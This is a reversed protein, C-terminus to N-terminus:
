AAHTPHPRRLRGALGIEPRARSWYSAVRHGALAAPRPRIEPFRWARGQRYRYPDRFRYRRESRRKRAPPSPSNMGIFRGHSDLLPGGSNGPNIAADTQIVSIAIPPGDTTATSAPIIGTTMTRELGFPNGIAYVKQGVGLHTSDGLRVPVAIRRTSKCCALDHGPDRASSGASRLPAQRFDHGRNAARGAVVHYNTLIHGQKDLVFGSGQGQQPVLGYSSTSPRTSSTINVVSPLAKKYVSINNTEESDYEPAAHAETLTLPSGKGALTRERNPGGTTTRSSTGSAALSSSLLFSEAFNM